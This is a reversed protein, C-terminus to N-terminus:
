FWGVGEGYCCVLFVLFGVLGRERVLYSGGGLGRGVCFCRVFVIKM